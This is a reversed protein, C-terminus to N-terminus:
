RINLSAGPTVIKQLAVMVRDILFGIGGVVFMCLMLYSLTKENSSQFWQWTWTGLGPSTALMEAAILVMWGTGFSLRIGTFIQPLSAPLIIRFVRGLWSLRLVKAVNLYDKEVNAVGNATALLTPWLACLAVVVASTVFPPTLLAGDTPQDAGATGSIMAKNVILVVMAFWVVPSVPRLVQVLPTIMEYFWGYLGSFLGVPVAVLVALAVGVLVTLLSTTIFDILTNRRDGSRAYNEITAITDQRTAADLSADNRVAIIQAACDRQVQARRESEAHWAAWEDQARDWVASPGPIAMGELKVNAATMSWAGLVVAIMVAPLGVMRLFRPLHFHVPEGWAMAVLPCFWNLGLINLWRQVGAPAQRRRQPMPPPPADGARPIALPANM